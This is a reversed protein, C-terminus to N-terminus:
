ERLHAIKIIKNQFESGVVRYTPFQKLAEQADEYTDFASWGDYWVVWCYGPERTYAVIDTEDRVRAYFKVLTFYDGYQIPMQGPRFFGCVIDNGDKRRIRAGETQIM